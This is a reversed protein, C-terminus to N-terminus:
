PVQGPVPTPTPPTVTTPTSGVLISAQGTGQILNKLTIATIATHMPAQLAANMTTVFNFFKTAEVSFANSVYLVDKTRMEFKTALFYMSPDRFNVNYIVPILPGEFGSCDIGLQEAVQRTEGRYLFVAAPDALNDNLGTSKAVAEALSLRWAEFNIQQGPSRGFAGFALFTQPQRLLYVTDNPSVYVNNVPEHVLAGFPATAVRGNRELIVWEDHPLSAPGGARTIVDLLREGGLNAPLRGPTRVDGTVTILSSQPQVLSVVVQPEIARNKLSDVIAQQLEVQTRGRARITGGYPISINGRVDVQQNPITIFNGPRVGAEAPIFLGGAAAEFISVSVVDGIGFRVEKAPPRGGFAPALRPVDRALVDVVEPTLKVLAYPLAARVGETRALRIDMNAPGDAPFLSCGGATLALSLIVLRSFDHFAPM